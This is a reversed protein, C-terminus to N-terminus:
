SIGENQPVRLKLLGGSTGTRLWILGIWAADLKKFTYKLIKRGDRGLNGWQERESENGLCVGTYVEGSQGMRAM